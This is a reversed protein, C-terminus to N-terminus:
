SWWGSSPWDPVRVPAGAPNPTAGNRVLAVAGM